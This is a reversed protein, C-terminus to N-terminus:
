GIRAIGLLSSIVGDIEPRGHHDSAWCNEYLQIYDFEDKTTAALKRPRQHQTVVKYIVSDIDDGYYPPERALMQWMLIGFSYIDAKCTVCLGRLVEPAAFVPTGPWPAKVGDAMDMIRSSGFDCLKCHDEMDIVINEPKVDLHIIKNKHCHQLAFGVDLAYRTCREIDLIFTTDNIKRLLNAGNCYEMLIIDYNGKNYVTKIVRIINPHVLQAANEEKHIVKSKTQEKSILKVAIPSEKIVTGFRGRGLINQSSIGEVGKKELEKLVPSNILPINCNPVQLHNHAHIKACTAQSVTQNSSYTKKLQFESNEHNERENQVTFINKRVKFYNPSSPSVGKNPSLSLSTCQRPSLIKSLSKGLNAM